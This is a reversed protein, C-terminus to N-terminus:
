RFKELVELYQFLSDERRKWYRSGKLRAKRGNKKNMDRIASGRPNRGGIWHTPAGGASAFRPTLTRFCHSCPIADVGQM